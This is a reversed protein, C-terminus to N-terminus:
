RWIEDLNINRDELYENIIERPEGQLRDEIYVLNWLVSAMDDAKNVRQFREEDHPDDLNFILKAKM